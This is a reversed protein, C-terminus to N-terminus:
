DAKGQTGGCQASGCRTSQFEDTPASGRTGCVPCVVDAMRGRLATVRLGFANTQGVQM